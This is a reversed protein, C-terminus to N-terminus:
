CGECMERTEGYFHTAENQNSLKTSFGNNTISSTKSWYINSSM